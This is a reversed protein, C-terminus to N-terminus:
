GRGASKDNVRDSVIIMSAPVCACQESHMMLKGTAIIEFTQADIYRVPEGDLLTMRSTGHQARMGDDDQTTFVHRHEVVIFM